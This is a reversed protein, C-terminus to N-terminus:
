GYPFGRVSLLLNTVTTAAAGRKLRILSVASAYQVAHTATSSPGGIIGNHVANHIRNGWMRVNGYGFDGKGDDSTDFIDNGFMDVNRLLYSIGDAVNTISNHAVTHGSTSNLELGEGDFSDSM